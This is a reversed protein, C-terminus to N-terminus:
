KFNKRVLFLSVLFNIVLIAGCCVIYFAMIPKEGHLAIYAVLTGIITMGILILLIRTFLKKKM